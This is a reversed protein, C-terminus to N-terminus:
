IASGRYSTCFFCGPNPETMDKTVIGLKGNYKIHKFPGRLGTIFLMFENVALSAVVGNIGVVSPGSDILEAKDVGYIAQRDIKQDVSENYKRIEDQDLENLCMLCGTGDIFIIRGGFDFPDIHIGTALDLCPIKYAQVLENMSARPGDNDFCAFVFNSKLILDQASASEIPDPVSKVVIKPNILKILEELVETKPKGDPHVEFSGILRNKNTSDLGDGDILNIAGVGLYALQQAVHSGLGGVGAIAVKSGSLKEQGEKGFLREQREYRNSSMM